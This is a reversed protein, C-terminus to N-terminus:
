KSSPILAMFEINNLRQRFRQQRLNLESPALAVDLATRPRHLRQAHKTARLIPIRDNGREIIFGREDGHGCCPCDHPHGIGFPQARDDSM